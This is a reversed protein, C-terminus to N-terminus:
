LETAFCKWITPRAARDVWAITLAIAVAAFATAAFATAAFAAAPVILCCPLQPQSPNSNSPPLWTSRIHLQIHIHICIYIIICTYIYIYTHAYIM